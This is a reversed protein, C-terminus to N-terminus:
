LQGGAGVACHGGVVLADGGYVVPLASCFAQSVLRRASERVDTVEVDRHVGIAM